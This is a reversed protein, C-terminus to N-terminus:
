RESLARRTRSVVSGSHASQAKASQLSRDIHDRLLRTGSRNTAACCFLHHRLGSLRETPCLCYLVYADRASFPHVSHSAFRRDTTVTPLKRCSSFCPDLASLCRCPWDDLRVPRHLPLVARKSPVGCPFRADDLNVAAVDRRGALRRPAWCGGQMAIADGNGAAACRQPKGMLRCATVAARLDWDCEDGCTHESPVTWAASPDRLAISQPAPVGTVGQRRRTGACLTDLRPEPSGCLGSRERGSPELPRELQKALEDVCVVDAKRRFGIPAGNLLSLSLHDVESDDDLM